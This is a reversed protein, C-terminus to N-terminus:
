RPLFNNIRPIMDKAFVHLRGDAEAVGRETAAAIPTLIRVLAGDRRGTMLSDLLLYYKMGFESATRRERQQFWYYMLSRQDGKQIVVRNFTGNTGPLLGAFNRDEFSAFEWGSGPLCVRPSHIAAGKSLSDYYAVFLNVAGRADNTHVFDGIYYDAPKLVKLVDQDLQAPRASWQDAQRPFSVFNERVPKPVYEHAWAISTIIGFALVCAMVSTLASTGMSAPATRRGQSQAHPPAPLSELTLDVKVKAPRFGELVFVVMILLVAGFLFVIWGEFQHLFGDAQQPGFREVLVAVVAIRFGNIFVTIMPASAVLIAKKWLPAKYLYALIFSICTLPLLYRLGSCAEAVQLKFNGLDIINGEVFIPIGFFRITSVGINTSLLQLKITVIAQLTYPLPITLLLLIALPVFVRLTGVGFAVLMLGLLTVVFAVQEIFYSEGLVGLIGLIQATIVLAVGPWRRDDSLASVLHRRQWLFFPVLAVVLFGYGYEEEKGWREYLNFLGDWASFAAFILSVIVFAPLVWRSTRIASASGRLPDNLPRPYLVTM